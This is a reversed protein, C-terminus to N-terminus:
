ARRSFWVAENQHPWESLEGALRRSHSRSVLWDDVTPVDRMAKRNPYSRLPIFDAQEDGGDEQKYGEDDRGNDEPGAATWTAWERGKERRTTRQACRGEESQM